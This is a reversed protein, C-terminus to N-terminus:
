RGGEKDKLIESAKEVGVVTSLTLYQNVIGQLKKKDAVSLKYKPKQLLQCKM